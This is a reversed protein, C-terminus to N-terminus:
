KYIAIEDLIHPEFHRLFIAINNNIMCQRHIYTHTSYHVRVRTRTHARARTYSLM